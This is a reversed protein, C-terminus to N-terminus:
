YVLVLVAAKEADKVVDDFKREKANPEKLKAAVDPVSELFGLLYSSKVAYNVNEPLAGSTKMAAVASLKASVVGVVNGLENVLAGGSNGPQVPVSIQFYRADDAAGSLSAIEGKSFKPSFGQLGPVPFGVTAVTNGLRVGRSPAVPLPSFKGAAKLLALDNAKDVKVVKASITGASTVLRVQNAGEVVHNNTILFGDETIFFGTGSVSPNEPSASNTSSSEKRPKFERAVRQAEAIQESTMQQALKNRAARADEAVSTWEKFLPKDPSAAAINLWKYAEIFDQPVGEGEAYMKGIAKQSSAAGQRAARLYWKAAQTLDKEVDPKIPWFGGQQYFLALIEQDSVEGREASFRFWRLAEEVNKDNDFAYHCALRSAAQLNGNTVSKTLWKIAEPQDKTVGYGNLYIWGLANQADADGKEALAKTKQFNEADQDPFEQIVKPSANTQNGITNRILDIHAKIRAAEDESTVNTSQCQGTSASALMFGLFALVWILRNVKM